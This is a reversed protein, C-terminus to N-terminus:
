AAKKELNLMSKFKERLYTEFGDEVGDCHIVDDIVEMVQKKGDEDLNENLIRAFNDVGRLNALTSRAQNVLSSIEDHSTGFVRMLGQRIVNYENMDFNQDCSALDVLLVTLALECERKDATAAKKSQAKKQGGGEKPTPIINNITKTLPSSTSDNAM